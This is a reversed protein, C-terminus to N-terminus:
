YASVYLGMASKAKRLTDEAIPNVRDYGEKL